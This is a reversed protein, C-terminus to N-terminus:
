NNAALENADIFLLLNLLCRSSALAVPSSSLIKWKVKCGGASAAFSKLLVEFFQKRTNGESKADVELESEIYLVPSVFM